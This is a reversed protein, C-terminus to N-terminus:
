RFDRDSKATEFQIHGLFWIVRLKFQPDLKDMDIQQITSLADGYRQQNYEEIAQQFIGTETTDQATQTKSPTTKVVQKKQGACGFFLIATFTLFLLKKNM